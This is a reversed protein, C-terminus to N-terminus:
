YVRLATSLSLQRQRSKTSKLAAHSLKKKITKANTSTMATVHHAISREQKMPRVADAVHAALLYVNSSKMLPSQFNWRQRCRLRPKQLFHACFKPKHLMAHTVM